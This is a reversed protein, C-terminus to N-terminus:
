VTEPGEAYILTSEIVMESESENKMYLIPIFDAGDLTNPVVTFVVSYAEEDRLNTRHAFGLTTSAVEVAGVSNVKAGQGTGPDTISLNPM